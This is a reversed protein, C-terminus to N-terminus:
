VTQPSHHAIESVREYIKILFFSSGSASLSAAQWNCITTTLGRLPLPFAGAGM